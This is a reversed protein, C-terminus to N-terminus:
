QICLSWRWVYSFETSYDDEVGEKWGNTKVWLGTANDEDHIFRSMLDSLTASGWPDLYYEIKDLISLNEPKPHSFYLPKRSTRM